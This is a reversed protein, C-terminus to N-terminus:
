NPIDREARVNVDSHGQKVRINVPGKDVAMNGPSVCPTSPMGTFVPIVFTLKQNLIGTDKIKSYMIYAEAKPAEINQM